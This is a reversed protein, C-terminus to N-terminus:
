VPVQVHLNLLQVQTASHAGSDDMRYYDFIQFKVILWLNYSPLKNDGEAIGLLFDKSNVYSRIAVRMGADIWCVIRTVELIVYLNVAM